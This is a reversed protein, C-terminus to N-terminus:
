GRRWKDWHFPNSGATDSLGLSLVVVVAAAGRELHANEVLLGHSLGDVEVLNLLLNRLEFLNVPLLVGTKALEVEVGENEANSGGGSTVIPLSM